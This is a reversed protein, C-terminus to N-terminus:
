PTAARAVRFGLDSERYDARNADRGGARLAWTGASWAGGRVVRLVCDDRLWASGDVPAGQYTDHWCDATWQWVDGLVDYVGFGNPAYHAVATTGTLACGGTAAHACVGGAGWYRVTSTGARAAYEWEAESPLRYQKGTRVGLWSAYADADAASVCVVPHDDTQAFGPARWSRGGKCDAPQYGTAKVFAAFQGRTVDTRGLWFPAAFHVAHPPYAWGRFENPVNEADEEGGNVGMTFSGAQILVLEPCEPCDKITARPTGAGQSWATGASLAVALAVLFWRM